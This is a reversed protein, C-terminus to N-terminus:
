FIAVRAGPEVGKRLLESAIVDIQRSLEGYTLSNKDSDTVAVRQTITLFLQEFRHVLTELWNSHFSPGLSLPLSANTWM